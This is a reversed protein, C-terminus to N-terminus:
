GFFFRTISVGYRRSDLTREITRQFQGNRNQQELDVLPGDPLETGNRDVLIKVQPRHFNVPNRPLNIVLGIETSDLEVLTGVPHIGICGAFLRALFEDFTRGGDDLIRRMAQDPLLAPRSTKPTTLEDYTSAMRVVQTMFSAGIDGHYLGEAPADEPIQCEYAVILRNIVLENFGGLRVLARAVKVRLAEMEAPSQDRIDNIGEMTLQADDDSTAATPGGELTGMLAWGLDHHFAAMGLDVLQTRTLGLRRGFVISLVATNLMHCFLNGKYGELHMLSLLLGHHRPEVDVLELCLRKVKAHRPSRGRRLDNVFQRLMLLGSAYTALIRQRADHEQRLEEDEADVVKKVKIAGLPYHTIPSDGGEALVELFAQLFLMITDHDPEGAFVLRNIDLFGFIRLLYRANQFSGFDLKVLRRNVFFNNEKLALVVQDGYVLLARATSIMAAVPRRLAENQLDYLTASRMLVFLNNVLQRSLEEFRDEADDLGHLFDLAGTLAKSSDSRTSEAM